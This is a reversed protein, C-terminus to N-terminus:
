SPYADFLMAVPKMQLDKIKERKEFYDEVIGIVSSGGLISAIVAFPPSIAAVIGIGGSVILSSTKVKYKEKYQQDLTQVENSHKRIAQEINYKVQLGVELFEDDSVNEMIEINKGMLDRLDQLEGRERIAKIKDLPINGLWRINEEQLAQLLYADKTLAKSRGVDLSQANSNQMLWTLNKWVGKFDSSYVSKFREHSVLDYTIMSFNGRLLSGFIEENNFTRQYKKEFYSKYLPFAIPSLGAGNPDCLVSVDKVLSFFADPSPIKKLFGNLEDYSFFNKDFVKSAIIVETQHLINDTKELHDDKELFSSVSPALSCVPTGSDSKFLEKLYLMDIASSLVIPFSIEWGTRDKKLWAWLESRVPDSIITTDAYLSAKKLFSATQPSNQLYGYVSGVYSTKVGGINRIQQEQSRWDLKSFEDNLSDMMASASIPDYIELMKFWYDDKIFNNNAAIKFAEGFYDNLISFYQEVISSL